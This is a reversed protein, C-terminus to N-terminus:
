RGFQRILEDAKSKEIRILVYFHNKSGNIGEVDHWQSVVETYNLKTDSLTEIIENKYDGGTSQISTFSSKIHSVIYRGIEARGREKAQEWADNEPILPGSIGVAYYYREDLPPNHPWEPFPSIVASKEYYCSYFFPMIILILFFIHTAAYLIGSLNIFESGQIGGCRKM